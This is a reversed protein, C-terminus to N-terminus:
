GTVLVAEAVATYGAFEDLGMEADADDLHCQDTLRLGHHLEPLAECREQLSLGETAREQCM